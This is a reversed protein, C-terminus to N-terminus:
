PINHYIYNSVFADFSEDAFPLKNADGKHFLLIISGKPKQM